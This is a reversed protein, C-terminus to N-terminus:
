CLCLNSDCIFINYHAVWYYYDVIILLNILNIMKQEKTNHPKLLHERQESLYIKQQLFGMQFLEYM